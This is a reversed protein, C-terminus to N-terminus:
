KTPEVEGTKRQQALAVTATSGTAVGLVTGAVNLWMPVSAPDILKYFVLATLAVSVVAYLYLRVKTNPLKIM